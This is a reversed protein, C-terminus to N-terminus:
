PLIHLEAIAYISLAKTSYNPVTTAGTVYFGDHPERVRHGAALLARAPRLDAVVPWLLNEDTSPM